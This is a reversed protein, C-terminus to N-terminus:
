NTFRDTPGNCEVMELSNKNQEQEFRVRRLLQGLKYMLCSRICTRYSVSKIKQPGRCRFKQIIRRKCSISRNEMKWVLM